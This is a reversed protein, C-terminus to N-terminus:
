RNRLAHAPSDLSALINEVITAAAEVGGAQRIAQELRRANQRYSANSLVEEVASRLTDPTLRDLPVVKGAGSQAVRAAIAPQDHAIPIAVMPVGFMLSQMVTNLGAHTITLTARALLELQPAYEVVVPDGALPRDLQRGTGGLSIVLQV